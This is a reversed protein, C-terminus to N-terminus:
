PLGRTLHPIYVHKNRNFVLTTSRCSIYWSKPILLKDAKIWLLRGNSDFVRVDCEFLM